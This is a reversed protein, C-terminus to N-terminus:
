IRKLEEKMLPLQRNINRILDGFKKTKVHYTM